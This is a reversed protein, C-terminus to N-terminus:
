CVATTLAQAQDIVVDSIAGPGGFAVVACPQLRTIEDATSQPLADKTVLLIPGALVTSAGGALADPFNTGTAIFVVTTNDPTWIEQSIAVATEFRDDGWVRVGHTGIPASGHVDAARADHGTARLWADTPSFGNKSSTADAVGFGVLAFTLAFLVGLSLRRM